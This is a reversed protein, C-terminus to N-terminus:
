EKNHHKVKNQKTKNWKGKNKNLQKSAQKNTQGKRGEELGGSHTPHADNKLSVFELKQRLQALIFWKSTRRISKDCFSKTYELTDLSILIAM